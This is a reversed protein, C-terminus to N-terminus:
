GGQPAETGALAKKAIFFIYDTSTTTWDVKTLVELAERLREAEEQWCAGCEPDFTPNGPGSSWHTFGQKTAKIHEM